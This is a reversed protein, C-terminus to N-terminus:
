NECGTKIRKVFVQLKNNQAQQIMNATGRSIEDWIAILADANRAMVGNRIHGAQKGISWDPIYRDIPVKNEKAWREGLLDVGRAGGSVVTTINFNSEIIARLLTDYSCISRSGAIIVRM